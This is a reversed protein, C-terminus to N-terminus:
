CTIQRYEEVLSWSKILKQRSDSIINAIRRTSIGFDFSSAIEKPSFGKYIHLQYILRNRKKDRGTLVKKLCYDIEEKLIKLKLEQEPDFITTKYKDSSYIEGKDGTIWTSEDLLRDMPPRKKAQIKIIHNKVVNRAIIRLYSYISNESEGKFVKLAKCDNQLLKLYVEQVLDKVTEDFQFCNKHLDSNKCEQIITNYVLNKYRSLFELWAKKNRKDNACHRVLETNNM